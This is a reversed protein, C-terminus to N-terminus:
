RDILSNRDVVGRLWDEGIAPISYKRVYASLKAIPYKWFCPKLLCTAMGLSLDPWEGKSGGHWVPM